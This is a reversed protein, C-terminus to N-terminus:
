ENWAKEHAAIAGELSHSWPQWEPDNRDFEILAEVFFGVQSASNRGAPDVFDVTLVLYEGTPICQICNYRRMQDSSYPRWIEIRRFLPDSVKTPGDGGLCSYQLLEADVTKAGMHRIFASKLKGKLEDWCKKDTNPNMNDALFVKDSPLNIPLYTEQRLFLAQLTCLAETNSAVAFVWVSAFRM